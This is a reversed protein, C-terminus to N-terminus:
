LFTHFTQLVIKSSYYLIQKYLLNKTIISVRKLHLEKLKKLRDLRKAQVDDTSM